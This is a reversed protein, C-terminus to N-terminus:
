SAKLRLDEQEALKLLKTFEEQYKFQITIRKDEHIDIREILSVVLNRDLREINECEKFRSLYESKLDEQNKLKDKEKFLGDLTNKLESIRNSYNTKLAIYEEENLLGGKLDAYLGMLLNETADMQKQVSLIQKDAAIIQITYRKSSDCNELVKDVKLMLSIHNKVVALVAEKLLKESISHSTCATKSLRTRTSCRYFHYLSGDKNKNTGRDMTCHCDACKLLGSFLNVKDSQPAARTNLMLLEQVTDYLYREIIPAVMNEAVIWDEKPIKIQRNNRYSLFKRKGQTIDGCYLPNGLVGSIAQTSWLGRIKEAYEVNHKKKKPYKDIRHKAPSPIGMANLRKAIGNKSGGEAYWTFINRVIGAAYEDILLKNNDDPDRIYGYAAFAGIFDGNKRKSTLASKVKASLDRSYSDNLINKIPILISDMEAPRLFSDVNDNIAIFRVGFMPFVEEIYMGTETYNRGLRSLDKVVVCNITGNRIREMMAQFGDREFNTGTAGDDVFTLHEGLDPQAMIFDSIIRKQTVVSGSASSDGAKMKLDEKSLRIYGATKWVNKEKKSTNIAM